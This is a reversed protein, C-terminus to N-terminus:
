ENMDLLRRVPWPRSRLEGLADASAAVDAGARARADATGALLEECLESFRSRALDIDVGAIQRDRYRFSGGVMVSSVDVARASTLLQNAVDNMPCFAAGSLDFVALDARQGAVLRGSGSWGCARVGRVTAADLTEAVSLWEDANATTLRCVLASLRAADLVDLADASNAGDTGVALAVGADLLARTPAIGSGLRMNSGPVTVVSAGASALVDIDAQDIWIGHAATLREDLMGLRHLEATISHGFREASSIAQPKSEALHLHVPLDFEVALDHLGVMLETSCHSPITPALAAEVGDFAPFESVFRRCQEIVQAASAGPLPAPCCSGIIPVAQHVSRDAVMPALRARLGVRSYGAAAAYLGEPDAGGSQAVLDFAATAGSALMEAAALVASLEALEASRAASMWGGNLLSAELTWNRSAGRAVMSHSHTHGNVLGPTVLHGSLDHHEADVDHFGGPSEVAQIIAGDILLDALLPTWEPGTLVTAGSIVQREVM